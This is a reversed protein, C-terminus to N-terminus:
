GGSEDPAMLSALEAQMMEWFSPWRFVGLNKTSVLWAEWEGAPTVVGPNLLYVEYGFGIVAESIQLATHVYAGRFYMPDQDAGYVRHAEESVDAGDQGVPLEALGQAQDPDKTQYLDVQEIPFLLLPEPWRWGNTVQLFERYSRPLRRGLRQEAAALQEETAGAYGLWGSEVVADPLELVHDRAQLWEWSWRALFAGWAFAAPAAADAPAPPIIPEAPPRPLPRLGLRRLADLAARQVQPDVDDLARELAAVEPATGLGCSGLADAAAARVEPAADQLGAIVAPLEGVYGLGEYAAIRTVPAPHRAALHLAAVVQPDRGYPWLKAFPLTPSTSYLQGRLEQLVQQFHPGDQPSAQGRARLLARAQERLQVWRTTESVGRIARAAAERVADSEHPDLYVACLANWAHFDMPVSGVVLRALEDAAAAREAAPRTTDLFVRIQEFADV